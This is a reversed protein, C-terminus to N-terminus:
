VITENSGDFISYAEYPGNDGVLLLHYDDEWDITLDGSVSEFSVSQVKRGVLKPLLSQYIPFSSIKELAVGAQLLACQGEVQICVGGPFLFSVHFASFCVSELEKDLLFSTNFTSPLGHM